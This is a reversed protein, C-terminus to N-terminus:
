RWWHPFDGCLPKYFTGKTIGRYGRVNVSVLQYLSLPVIKSLFNDMLQTSKRSNVLKESKQERWSTEILYKRHFLSARLTNPMHTTSRNLM